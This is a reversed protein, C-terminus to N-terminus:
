CHATTPPCTQMNTPSKPESHPWSTQWTTEVSQTPVQAKVYRYASDANFQPVNIVAKGTEAKSDSAKKVNNSCAIFALLILCLPILTYNQKMRTITKKIQLPTSKFHNNM